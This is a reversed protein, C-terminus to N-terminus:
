ARAARRDAAKQATNRTFSLDHDLGTTTDHATYARPGLQRVTFRRTPTAPNAM